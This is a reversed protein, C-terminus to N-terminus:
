NRSPNSLIVSRVRLMVVGLLLMLQTAPSPVSTSVGDIDASVEYLNLTIIPLLSFGFKTSVFVTLTDGSIWNTLDDALGTVSNTFQLTDAVFM